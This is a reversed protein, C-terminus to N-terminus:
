PINHAPSGPDRRRAILAAQGALGGPQVPADSIDIYVMTDLGSFLEPLEGPQLLYDPNTPGKKRHSLGAATFTQYFLLGGPKLAAALSPCLARSLYRSVCIVDFGQAEPPDAIVDREAATVQLQMADALAQLSAIAASSIDWAVTELGQRALALANGGRGCALDLAQGRVPLLHGYEVLLWCPSPLHQEPSQQYHQNWRQKEDM